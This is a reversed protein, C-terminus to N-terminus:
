QSATLSEMFSSALPLVPFPQRPEGLVAHSPTFGALDAGIRLVAEFAKPSRLLLPATLAFFLRNPVPLLCCRRAPDTAPLAQQLAQLMATYSLESDGGLGIREPLDPNWGSSGLQEALELAVGALQRAHIPQRLGTQAPLPLLPLRRMLQLLRSLNRDGYPGAQGYILTPRLIRCPVALRRCSALLQDEAATLRAVLQRDFRNTAFRKTIASSSSCAIVGRLRQLREPYCSALDELFPALLWIPAFSIWIAPAQPNGAPQFGAPDRLDAPQLWGAAMSAKRSYGVLEVSALQRLAEGTPTAAGFLHITM